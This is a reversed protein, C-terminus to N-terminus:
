SRKCNTCMSNSKSAVKKNNKFSILESGISVKKPKLLENKASDDFALVAIRAFLKDINEGSKSSVPWYEANIAKAMTVANLESNKYAFGGMLDKKTGVLFVYPLMDGCTQMADFFWRRTNSLTEPKSLDFVVIVVHSNRYYSQAISKFREQGATDWIQLNFPIGLIYFRETEFDVGITSKYSSDFMKRCFRFIATSLRLKELLSM